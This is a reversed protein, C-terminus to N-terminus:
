LVLTKRPALTLDHGWLSNAAESFGFPNVIPAHFHLSLDNHASVGSTGTWAMYVQRKEM